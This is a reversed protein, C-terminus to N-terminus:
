APREAHGASAKELGPVHAVGVRVEFEAGRFDEGFPECRGGLHASLFTEAIANFSLSNEPVAFGHGEQPYLVYTVALSKARMAEIIEEESALLIDTVYSSVFHWTLKSSTAIDDPTVALLGNQDAPDLGERFIALQPDLGVRRLLEVFGYQVFGSCIFQPPLWRKPATRVANAMSSKRGKRIRSWGLRAGFAISLWIRMATKFDYSSKVHDLMVGRILKRLKADYWPADLRLIGVDTAAKRELYSRLNAIGVGESVSELLFTNEFGDEPDPVLFVLAAHSFVGGTAFRIAWSSLTASRSVVIDGRM